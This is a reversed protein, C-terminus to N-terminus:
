GVSNCVRLLPYRIRLIQDRAETEKEIFDDFGGDLSELRPFLGLLNGAMQWGEVLCYKNKKIEVSLNNSEVYSKIQTSVQTFVDPKQITGFTPEIQIVEQTQDSM